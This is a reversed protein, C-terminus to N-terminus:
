ESLFVNKAIPQELSAYQFMMNLLFKYILHHFRDNWRRDQFPIDAKKIFVVRNFVWEDEKTKGGHEFDPYLYIDAYDSFMKCIDYEQEENWILFTNKENHLSLNWKHLGQYQCREGENEQHRLIIKGGMKCVFLMQMIGRIPDFSHDLSNSMHVIDFTNKEFLTDLIEVFGYRLDLGNNVHYKRKLYVYADALPDVATIQLDRIKNSLFGCRGIPGSGVDLFKLSDYSSDSLQEDLTFARNKGCVADKSKIRFFEDWFQLEDNIGSLWSYLDQEYNVKM